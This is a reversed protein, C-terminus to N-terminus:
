EDEEDDPDLEVTIFIRGGSAYAIDTPMILIHGDPDPEYADNAVYASTRSLDLISSNYKAKATVRGNVIFYFANYEREDIKPWIFNSDDLVLTTDDVYTEDKDTDFKVCSGSVTSDDFNIKGDKVPTKKEKDKDYIIFKANQLKAELIRRYIDDAMRVRKHNARNIYYLDSNEYDLLLEGDRPTSVNYDRLTLPYSGFLSPIHM